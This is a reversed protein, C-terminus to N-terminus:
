THAHIVPMMLLQATNLKCLKKKNKYDKIAQIHSTNQKQEPKKATGQTM